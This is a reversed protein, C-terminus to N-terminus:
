YRVWGAEPSVLSTWDKLAGTFGPWRQKLQQPTLYEIGPFKSAEYTTDVFEKALKGAAMVWGTQTFLGSLPHNSSKWVNMAELALESYVENSYDYRLTKNLDTAAADQSPPAFRDLVTVRNYGRKSLHYATSTGFAGGGIILLSPRPKQTGLM